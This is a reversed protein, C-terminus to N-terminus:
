PRAELVLNFPTDAARRFRSFGADTAVQRLAAEGAQAGLPHTAGQSLANPVCAFTSASYFLRGVLNLNDEVRDGARPEVLLWTGDAELANRIHRAASVPDGLEHLANFICVLDYGNGPFDDALAVEFTVRDSVGAEAAAGRAAEVSGAHYDFGSFTSAPYARALLITTAGYGCGVDAVRAGSRLRDEVGDLAPIWHPVLNAAYRPRFFRDTGPFLDSDHEHWGLAGDAAFASRLRQEDKHTASAVTMGGAIFAPTGDHALCAAQEETLSYRGTAPEYECYASAAQANLWEEVLRAQCGARAALETPTQRGGDALARYLGLKDGVVVTAAHLTAAMDETFRAVFAELKAQDIM